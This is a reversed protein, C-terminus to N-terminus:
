DLYIHFLLKKFSRNFPNKSRILVFNGTIEVIARSVSKVYQVVYKDCFSTKVM